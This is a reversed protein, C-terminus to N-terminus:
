AENIMSRLGTFRLRLDTDLNDMDNCLVQLGEEDSPKALDALEKYTGVLDILAQHRERIKQLLEERKM